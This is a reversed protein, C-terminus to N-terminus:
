PRPAYGPGADGCLSSAPDLDAPAHGLRRADTMRSLLAAFDCAFARMDFLGSEARREALKAHLADRFARDNGVRVATDVFARDDAAVLEPM